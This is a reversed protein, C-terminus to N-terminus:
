LLMAKEATIYNSGCYTDRHKFKSTVYLTKLGNDMGVCFFLVRSSPLHLVYAAKCIENFKNFGLEVLKAEWNHVFSDLSVKNIFDFEEPTIEVDTASKSENMIIIPLNVYPKLREETAHFTKNILLKQEWKNFEVFKLPAIHQLTQYDIRYVEQTQVKYSPSLKGNKLFRSPQTVRWPYM